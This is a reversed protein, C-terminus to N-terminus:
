KHANVYETYEDPMVLKPKNTVKWALESTNELVKDIRDQIGIIEDMCIQASKTDGARMYLEYGVALKNFYDVYEGRTYKINALAENKADIVAGFDGRSYAVEAKADWALAIHDNLALIRDAQEDMQDATEAKTLLEMLAQTNWPYCKVSAELKGAYFLTSGVGIYVSGALLIAMVAMVPATLKVSKTKGSDWDLCLLVIFYMAIYELDFDMMCHALLTLLVVKRAAEQKATVAKVVAVVAIIAPIWGIDLLLQLFDNHVWRVSYLGNQFSGHSMYYGLYGLGLPHNGIVPLADQWYLLRGLLSTDSKSLDFLRSVSASGGFILLLVAFAAAVSAIGIILAKPKKRLRIILSILIAPIALVFVTRSGSQFLGFMLVLACLVKQVNLKDESLILVELGLLLFCAFTNPYQFFGSLRDRSTFLTYLSPIYHLAFSVLVMFGGIWPLDKLITSREDSSTQLLCLAMLPLPLYKAIGWVSLGKDVAWLVSLCYGIYIAIAAVCAANRRFGLKQRKSFSVLWVFLAISALACGLEYFLGVALISVAM